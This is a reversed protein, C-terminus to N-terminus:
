KKGSSCKEIMHGFVFSLVYVLISNGTGILFPSSNGIELYPVKFAAEEILFLVMMIAPHLLYVWFTLLSLYGFDKKIDIITFGAVYVLSAIVLILNYPAMPTVYSFLTSNDRIALFIFYEVATIVTALVILFCGLGNKGKRELAWEHVVYGMMFVGLLQACYGIGWFLSSPNVLADIIGWICVIFAIKKFGAEGTKEKGLAVFPAMLYLGILTYMYWMHESPIGKLFSIGQFLLAQPYTLDEIGYALGYIGTKWYVFANFLWYFFSFIVTPIGLKKWTKKYFTGIDKTSSAKLVFAGSLMIFVIVASTTIQRIFMFYHYNFNLEGLDSVLNREFTCVHLSVVLYAAIIRLLDLGNERKNM